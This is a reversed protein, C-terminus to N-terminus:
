QGLDTHDRDNYDAPCQESGPLIRQLVLRSTGTALTLALFGPILGIIIWAVPLM